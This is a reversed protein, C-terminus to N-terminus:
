HTFVENKRIPSDLKVKKSIVYACPLGYTKVLTCGCKSSGSGVNEARKGEHFIYNLTAQSINDVLQSYLTNDKYRHELVMINHGFSAQIENHQNQIMQNVSDWYTCLADKNNGLWNKLTAHASEVQNTTINGLHIVQNTRACAIKEKLQDLITSEVYKLLNPYKECVKAVSNMLTTDCDTVIVKPMEEQDKPM